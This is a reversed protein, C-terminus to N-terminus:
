LWLRGDRLSDVGEEGDRGDKTGEKGVAVEISRERVRVVVGEVGKKEIGEREAKKAGDKVRESVRVVDGTRIGHEPLEGKRGKEVVAPDLGLELVTRGGMGTRASNLTLNLIALGSRALLTSSYSSLLLSTQATETALELSLLSLHTHFLAHPSLPAPQRPAM